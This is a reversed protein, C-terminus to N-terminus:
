GGFGRDNLVLQNSIQRLNFVPKRENFYEWVVKIIEAHSNNRFIIMECSSSPGGTTKLM